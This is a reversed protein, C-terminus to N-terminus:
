QRLAEQASLHYDLIESLNAPVATARGQKMYECCISGGQGINHPNEMGLGLIRSQIFDVLNCFRGLEEVHHSRYFDNVACKRCEVYWDSAVGDGDRYEIDWGMPHTSAAAASHRALSLFIRSFFVKRMGWRFPGPIARHLDDFVEYEIRVTDRVDKGSEKMARYFAILFVNASMVYNFLNLPGKYRPTEPVLRKYFALADDEVRKAAESGYYQILKRRYRGFHKPFRRIRKEIAKSDIMGDTTM